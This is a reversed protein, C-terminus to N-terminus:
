REYFHWASPLAIPILVPDFNESFLLDHFDYHLNILNTHFNSRGYSERLVQEFIKTLQYIM